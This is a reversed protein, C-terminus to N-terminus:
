ALDDILKDLDTKRLHNAFSQLEKFAQRLAEQHQTRFADDPTGGAVLRYHLSSREIISLYGSSALWELGLAVIQTNTASSIALDALQYYQQQKRLGEKVVKSVTKLFGTVQHEEPAILFWCIQRPQVTRLLHRLTDIDPPVSWIVLTDNPSIALRDRGTLPSGCTGEKWVAFSRSASLATLDESPTRSTRYDINSISGGTGEMNVPNDEHSKRYDIWEYQLKDNGHYDDAHISYALDFQGEPMPLDAGNWWIFQTLNGEPDEADVVLHERLKGVAASNVVRMGEALFLLSPNGPGFPALLDLSKAYDFTISAPAVLEDIVLDSPATRVAFMEGITKHMSRRFADLSDPKLSLGAAMPHGGYSLLYAKNQTLAATINIGAISRASGRLNEDPHSVLLIVPRHLIEVLRSAVIGVIGAPWEPHHLILMPQDLLGRDQELQNLAGQFVQDCLYKRQANLGEILNVRVAIEVADESLLFDVMPNADSLRGVANLRPALAFSIHEEQVRTIEVGASQLLAALAPRPAARMQSLGSQVMYRTEGTLEALDAVCGLAALDHLQLAKEPMHKEKLLAEAFKLATGAGPLSSLPHGPSLRQPNVLAYAPPLTEPLTHHDTVVVDIGRSQAYSIADHATIGTDCTLIVKVGQELFRLLPGQAIGHSEPGRVPIHFIHDAGLERLASVLIATSTQGDVDFDGWVGIRQGSQIAHLVRSVAKDMDPFDYPDAQTYSSFDIFERAIQLDTFGRRVLTQFVIEPYNGINRIQRPVPVRELIKWNREIHPPRYM